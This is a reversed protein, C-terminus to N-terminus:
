MTCVPTDANRCFPYDEVNTSCLLTAGTQLHIEVNNNIRITGCLYRGAPVVVTGGGNTACDDIAAQIAKTNLTKGDGVAGYVLINYAPSIAQSHDIKEAQVCGLLICVAICGFLKGTGKAEM